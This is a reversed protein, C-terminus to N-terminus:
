IKSEEQHYENGDPQTPLYEDLESIKTTKHTQSQQQKEEFHRITNGVNTDTSNTRSPASVLDRYNTDLSEISKTRSYGNYLRPPSNADTTNDKCKDCIYNNNEGYYSITEPKVCRWHYSGHCVRGINFFSLFNLYIFFFLFVLDKCLLIEEFSYLLRKCINCTTQPSSPSSSSTKPSVYAYSNSSPTKTITTMVPNSKDPTIIL